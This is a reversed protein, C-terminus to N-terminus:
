ALEKPDLLEKCMKSLLEINHLPIRELAEFVEHPDEIMYLANTLNDIRISRLIDERSHTAPFEHITM